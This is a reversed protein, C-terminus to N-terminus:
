PRDDFMSQFTSGTAPGGQRAPEGVSTPRRWRQSGDSLAGDVSKPLPRSTALHLVVGLVGLLLLAAPREDPDVANQSLQERAIFELLDRHAWGNVVAQQPAGDTLGQNAEDDAMIMDVENGSAAGSPEDPAMAFFVVVAVIGLVVGGVRRVWIM